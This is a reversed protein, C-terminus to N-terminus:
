KDGDLSAGPGIFHFTLNVMILWLHGESFSEVFVLSVVRLVNLHMLHRHLLVDSSLFSILLLQRLRLYHM